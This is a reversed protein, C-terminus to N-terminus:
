APPKPARRFLGEQAVSAVRVGDKSYMGGWTLGRAGHAVPSDTVFSIGILVICVVVSLAKATTDYSAPFSM